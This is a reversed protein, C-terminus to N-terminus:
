PYGVKAQLTSLSVSRHQIPNHPIRQEAAPNLLLNQHEAASVTDEDTDKILCPLSRSHSVNPESLRSNQSGAVNNSTLSRFISFIFSLHALKFWILVIFFVANRSIITQRVALFSYITIEIILLSVLVRCSIRLSFTIPSSNVSQAPGAPM